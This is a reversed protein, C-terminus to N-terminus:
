SNFSQSKWLFYFAQSCLMFGLIKLLVATSVYEMLIGASLFYIALTIFLMAKDQTKQKDNHETANDIVMERLQTM